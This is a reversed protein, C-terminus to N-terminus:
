ASGRFFQVGAALLGFAWAYTILARGVTVAPAVATSVLLPGVIVLCLLGVGLGVLGALALRTWPIM